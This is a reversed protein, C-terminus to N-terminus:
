DHAQCGPRPNPANARGGGTQAGDGASRFPFSGRASTHRRRSSGLYADILPKVHQVVEFARVPDGNWHIVSRRVVEVRVFDVQATFPNIVQTDWRQGVHLGPLRDLPGLVDQVVSRPLYDISLTKNLMEVPGHSTIEMKKDKVQGKVAILTMPRIARSSTSISRVCTERPTSEISVTSRSGSARRRSRFPAGRLLGAADVEVQSTLEIWGEPKHSLGTVAEGVTRRVDPLAPDDVVQINWRVPRSSDGALAIARLDPAYGLTLEPIVEWTLLFFAAVSWYVLIVLSVFRSPM